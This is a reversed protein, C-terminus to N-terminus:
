GHVHRHGIRLLVVAFFGIVGLAVLLALLGIFLVFLTVLSGGMWLLFGGLARRHFIFNYGIAAIVCFYLAVACALVAGLGPVTRYLVIIAAAPFSLTLLSTHLNLLRLRQGRAKFVNLTMVHGVLTYLRVIGYAVPVAIATVIIWILCTLLGHAPRWGSQYELREIWAPQTVALSLVMVIVTWATTHRSTRIARDLPTDITKFITRPGRCLSYLSTFYSWWTDDMGM